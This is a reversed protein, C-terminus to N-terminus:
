DRQEVPRAPLRRVCTRALRLTALALVLKRCRCPTMKRRAALPPGSQQSAAGKPSSVMMPERPNM